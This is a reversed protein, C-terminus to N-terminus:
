AVVEAYASLSDLHIRVILDDHIAYQQGVADARDAGVYRAAIRTTWTLHDEPRQQVAVAGSGSVFAFPPNEDDVCIGVRADHHLNRAKVSTSGTTFVIDGRDVVFWVPVVHPRGDPRRTALKLTRTGSRLFADVEQESMRRV